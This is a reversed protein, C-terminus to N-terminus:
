PGWLAAEAAAREEPTIWYGGTGSTDGAANNAVSVSGWYADGAAASGWYASGWYASGWYASGWYATAWDPDGAAVQSWAASDFVPTPGGGPDPVLFPALAGDANPPDTLKVAQAADIAGAGSSATQATPMAGATSMLAGKVQDPTWSPHVAMLYAAAGAVVPAAFSTGSMQMYGPAVIRDPWTTALTSAAPVAGVMYRGPAGIDPKAFGDLTYGYASWPATVDDDSSLSGLMDTGGVTIVFPDNAPSFRVGSPQGDVAYNGVAAVVVVGSLWLKEVAKDVPDFQFSSPVTGNLSFNAVRIGAEDKHEYIWDAAAVVDSTLAVGQDDMVDISVIPANPAAGAYGAAQGAAISAVFTGHGRGDGPSNDSQQTLTVQQVRSGFDGASPDVGSDVIAIGPAQLGGVSAPQWFKAVGSAYPWLQDSTYISQSDELRVPADETIALIGPQGALKVIEAGTLEAAVGSIAAFRRRIGQAQGKAAGVEQGVDATSRGRKGQVIVNFTAEPANRAAQLLTTPVFAEPPLDANAPLPALLSLACAAFAISLSGSAWRFKCIPRWAM